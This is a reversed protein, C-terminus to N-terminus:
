SMKIKCKLHTELNTVVASQFESQSWTPTSVCSTTHIILNRIVKDKVRTIQEYTFHIYSNIHMNRTHTERLYIHLNRIQLESQFFILVIQSNWTWSYGVREKNAKRQSAKRKCLPAFDHDANMDAGTISRVTPSLHLSSVSWSWQSSYYRSINTPYVPQM